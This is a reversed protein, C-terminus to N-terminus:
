DSVPKLATEVDEATIKRHFLQASQKELKGSTLRVVAGRELGRYSADFKLVWTGESPWQPAVAYTAAQAVPELKLPISRRVGNVVGEATATIAAEAPNHCGDARVLVVANKAAADKVTSPNQISIWFDGAAATAAWGLALAWFATFRFRVNNHM